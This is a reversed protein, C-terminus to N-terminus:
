IIKRNQSGEFTSFFHRVTVSLIEAVTNDNYIAQREIKKITKQTNKTTSILGRLM